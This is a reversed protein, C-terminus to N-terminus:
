AHLSFLFILSVHTVPLDLKVAFPCHAKTEVRVLSLTNVMPDATRVSDEQAYLLYEEVLSPTNVMPDATRVSDEQAYLM